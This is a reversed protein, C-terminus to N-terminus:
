FHAVENKSLLSKKHLKPLPSTRDVTVLPVSVRVAGSVLVVVFVM